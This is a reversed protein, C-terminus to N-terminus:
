LGMCEYLKAFQMDCGVVTPRTAADCTFAPMPGICGLMQNFLLMCESALSDMCGSVCTAKDPPGGACMAPVVFDCVADCDLCQAPFVELNKWVGEECERVNCFQCPDECGTSCFEGEMACPTGEEPFPDCDVAGTTADTTVDTTPETTANSTPEGTTPMGTTTTVGTDDSFTTPTDTTQCAPEDNVREQWTGAKCELVLGCPDESTTCSQGDPSCPSGVAPLTGSEVDCEQTTGPGCALGLAFSFALPSIREKILTM